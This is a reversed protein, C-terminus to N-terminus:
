LLHIHPYYRPGQYKTCYITLYYSNVSLFFSNWLQLYRILVAVTSCLYLIIIFIKVMLWRTNGFDILNFTYTCLFYRLQSICAFHVWNFQAEVDNDTHFLRLWTLFKCQSYVVDITVSIIIHKAVHYIFIKNYFFILKM